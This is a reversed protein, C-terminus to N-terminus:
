GLDESLVGENWEPRQEFTVEELLGEPGSQRPYSEVGRTVGKLNIGHSCFSLESNGWLMSYQRTHLPCWCISTFSHILLHNWHLLSAGPPWLLQCARHWLLSTCALFSSIVQQKLCVSVVWVEGVPDPLLWLVIYILVSVDSDSRHAQKNWLWTRPDKPSTIAWIPSQSLLPCLFTVVNMLELTGHLGSMTGQPWIKHRLGSSHACM